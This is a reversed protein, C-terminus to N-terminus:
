AKLWRVLDGKLQFTLVAPFPPTGWRDAQTQPWRHPSPLPCAPNAGVDLIYDKEKKEKKKKLM